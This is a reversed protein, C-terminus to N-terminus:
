MPCTIEEEVEDVGLGPGTGEAKVRQRVKMEARTDPGKRTELAVASDRKQLDSAQQNTTREIRVKKKIGTSFPSVVPTTLTHALLPNELRDQLREVGSSRSGANSDYPAASQRLHPMSKEKPVPQPGLSTTRQTECRTRRSGHSRGYGENCDESSSIHVQEYRSDTTKASCKHVGPYADVPNAYYGDSGNYCSRSQVDNSSDQWERHTSPRAVQQSSGKVHKLRDETGIDHSSSAKPTVSVANGANVLRPKIGLAPLIEPLAHISGAPYHLAYPPYRRRGEVRSHRPANPELRHPDRSSRVRPDM